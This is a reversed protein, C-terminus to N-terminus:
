LNAMFEIRMWNAHSAGPFYYSGPDFYEWVIFAALGLLLATVSTLM